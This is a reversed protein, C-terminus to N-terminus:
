QKKGKNIGLNVVKKSMQNYINKIKPILTNMIFKKSNLPFIVIIGEM